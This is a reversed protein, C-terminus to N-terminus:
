SRVEAHNFSVGCNVQKFDTQKAKIYVSCFGARNIDSHSICFITVIGDGNKVETIRKHDEIASVLGEIQYYM